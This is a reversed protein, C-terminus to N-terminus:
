LGFVVRKGTECLRSVEALAIEAAAAAGRGAFLRAFGRREGENKTLIGNIRIGGGEKM